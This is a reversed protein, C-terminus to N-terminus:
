KKALFPGILNVPVWWSLANVSTAMFSCVGVLNGDVDFAGGGSDGHNISADLQLRPEDLGLSVQPNSVFGHTYSWLSGMPHGVLHVPDGQFVPKSRLKAIPHAPPDSVSVLGLDHVESYRVLVGTRDKDDSRAQWHATKGIPDYDPFAVLSETRLQQEIPNLGLFKVCHGATLFESESVWVGACRLQGDETLAVTMYLLDQITVPKPVVPPSPITACCAVLLFAWVLRWM